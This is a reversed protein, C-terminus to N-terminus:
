AAASERQLQAATEANKNVSFLPLSPYFFFDFSLYLDRERGVVRCKTGARRRPTTFRIRRLYIKSNDSQQTRQLESNILLNILAFRRTRALSRAGGVVFRSPFIIKVFIGFKNTSSQLECTFVSPSKMRMSCSNIKQHTSYHISAILYQMFLCALAAPATRKECFLSYNAAAFDM